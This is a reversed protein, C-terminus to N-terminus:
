QAPFALEIFVSWCLEVDDVSRCPSWYEGDPSEELLETESVDEVLTQSSGFIYRESVLREHENSISQDTGFAFMTQSTPELVEDAIARSAAEYGIPPLAIPHPHM